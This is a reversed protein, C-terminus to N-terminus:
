SVQQQQQQQGKVHELATRIDEDLDDVALFADIWAITKRQLEERDTTVELQERLKALVGRLNRPFETTRPDVGVITERVHCDCTSPDRPFQEDMADLVHQSIRPQVTLQRYSTFMEFFSAATSADFFSQKRSIDFIAMPIAGDMAPNSKLQTIAQKDIVTSQATTPEPMIIGDEEDEDEDWDILRLEDEAEAKKVALAGKGDRSKKKEIKDLWNMECRAYELWLRGDKNCFRCGRMFFGRAAAMDGSLASRKGAMVWLEPDTPLMRLADTM